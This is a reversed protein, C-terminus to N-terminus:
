NAPVLVYGKSFLCSEVAQNRPSENMDRTSYTPPVYIPPRGYCMSFGGRRHRCYSYDDYIFGGGEMETVPMVPYLRSARSECAFKDRGFQELTKTPHTWEYHQCATLGAFVLMLFSLRGFTKFKYVLRVDIITRM